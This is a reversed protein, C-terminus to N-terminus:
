EAGLKKATKEGRRFAHETAKTQADAPDTAWVWIPKGIPRGDAYRGWHASMWQRERVRQVQITVGSIVLTAPMWTYDGIEIWDRVRAAIDDLQGQTPQTLCRVTFPSETTM